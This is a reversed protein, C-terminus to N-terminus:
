AGYAALKARLRDQRVGIAARQAHQVVGAHVIAEKMAQARRLEVPRDAGGGAAFRQDRHHPALQAALRLGKAMGFVDDGPAGVNVAVVNMQPREDFLRPAIACLQHHDIRIARAGSGAGVPIQGDIRSSIDRQRQRQHVHDDVFM